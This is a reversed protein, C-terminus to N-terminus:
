PIQRLVFIASLYSAVGRGFRLEVSARRDTTHPKTRAKTNDYFPLQKTLTKPAHPWCRFNDVNKAMM